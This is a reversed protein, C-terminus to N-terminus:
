REDSGHKMRYVHRQFPKFADKLVGNRLTVKRNEFMVEATGNQAVGAASLDFATEVPEFTGNVTIVVVEDGLRKSIFRVSEDKVKVVPELELSFLYSKLTEVEARLRLINDLVVKSHPIGGFYNFGMCHNTLAVYTMWVLEENIPERSFREAGQLWCFVPKRERKGDRDMMRLVEEFSYLDNIPQPRGPPLGICPYRDISLVDGPFGEVRGAFARYSLFHHNGWVLREPAAFKTELAKKYVLKNGSEDNPIVGVLSPIDRCKEM